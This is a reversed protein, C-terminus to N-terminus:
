SGVKQDPRPRFVKTRIELFDFFTLNIEIWFDEPRTEFKHRDASSFYWDASSYYRDANWSQWIARKNTLGVNSNQDVKSEKKSNKKAPISKIRM